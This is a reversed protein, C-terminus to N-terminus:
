NEKKEETEPIQVIGKGAEYYFAEDFLIEDESLETRNVVKVIPTINGDIGTDAPIVILEHISSPIVILRKTEPSLQGAVTDMVATNFLVGAGLCMIQNTVVYMPLTDELWSLDAKVDMKKMCAKMYAKMGFAVPSAARITEEGPVVPQSAYWKEAQTDFNKKVEETLNRM